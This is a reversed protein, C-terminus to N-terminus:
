THNAQLSYFSAAGGVTISTGSELNYVGAKFYLEQAGWGILNDASTSVKIQTSQGNARITLNGDRLLTLQYTFITNLPINRILNVIRLFSAQSPTKRVQAYVCGNCPNNNPDLPNLDYYLKVFPSNSARNGFVDTNGKDHIQAIVMRKEVPPVQSVLLSATLTNSAFTSLKWTTYAGPLVELLETRAYNSGPTTGGGVPTFFNMTGTVPDTFFFPAKTYGSNLTAVGISSATSVNGLPIPLTLSWQSLNYNSSPPVSPNLGTLRLTNSALSPAGTAVSYAAGAPIFVDVDGVAVPQIVVVYNPQCQVGSVSVVTGNTVNIRTADFGIVPESFLVNVAFTKPYPNSVASTTIIVTPNAFLTSSLVVLLM